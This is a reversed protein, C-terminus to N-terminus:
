PDIRPPNRDPTTQPTGRLMWLGYLEVLRVSRARQVDEQSAINAAASDGPVLSFGVRGRQAWKWSYHDRVKPGPARLLAYLTDRAPALGVLRNSTTDACGAYNCPRMRWIATGSPAAVWATDRGSSKPVHPRTLASDAFPTRAWEVGNADRVIVEIWRTAANTPVTWSIPVSASCCALWLLLLAPKM